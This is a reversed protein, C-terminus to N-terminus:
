AHRLGRVVNPLMAPRAAVLAIMTLVPVASMSLLTAGIGGGAPLACAPLLAASLIMATSVSFVPVPANRRSLWAFTFLRFAQAVITAAIAGALGHVPILLAYLAIVLGAAVFNVAFVSVTQNGLFAGANSLAVMENMAIVLILWPLWQLAPAYGAPLVWGVFLPLALHLLAGGACLIALGITWVMSNREIGNEQQLAALRKPYWWLGLPQILLSTALALKAAIAYHALEERTVNDALFWRDATGLAFMSLGSLVLPLGYVLLRGGMERSFAIGTERLLFVMLIAGILLHVPANALLVGEPGWGASLLAWMLAIQLVTRGFVFGLYMMARDRMRLFALPLEVFTTLSASALSFRFVNIDISLAFQCHLPTAAFQVIALMVVGALVATGTLEALHRKNDHISPACFRYLIETLGLTCFLSTFEILSVALDLEGYDSPALVSTVLPITILSFGKMLIIALGYTAFSRFANLTSM